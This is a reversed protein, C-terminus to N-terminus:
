PAGDQDGGKQQRHDPRAKKTNAQIFLTDFGLLGCEMRILGILILLDLDIVIPYVVPEPVIQIGIEEYADVLEGLIQRLLLVVPVELLAVKQKQHDDIVAILAVACQMDVAIGHGLDTM